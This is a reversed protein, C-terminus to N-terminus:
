SRRTDLLGEAAGSARGAPAAACSASRRAACGDPPPAVEGLQHRAELRHLVLRQGLQRARRQPRDRGLDVVGVRLDLRQLLRDHRTMAALLGAAPEGADGPDPWDDGRGDGRCHGIGRDEFRSTLERGPQAEHRFLVRGAALVAEAANGLGAVAVDPSQQDDAGGTEDAVLM